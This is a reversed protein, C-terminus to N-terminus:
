MSDNTQIVTKSIVVVLVAYNLCLSDLLLISCQNTVPWRPSILLSRSLFLGNAM